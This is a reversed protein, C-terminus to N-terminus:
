NKTGCYYCRALRMLRWKTCGVCKVLSIDTIRETRDRKGPVRVLKDDFCRLVSSWPVPYVHAVADLKDRCLAQVHAVVADAVPLGDCPGQIMPLTTTFFEFLAPEGMGLLWSYDGDTITHSYITGDGIGLVWYCTLVCEFLRPDRFANYWVQNLLGLRPFMVTTVYQQYREAPSDKHSAHGLPYILSGRQLSELTLAAARLVSVLGANIGPSILPNTFGASNGIAFWGPGAVVPSVFALQKRGFYTTNPAYYNPLLKFRTTLLTDLIPYKKQVALFKAETSRGKVQALDSDDRLVWGISVIWEYSAGFEVCLENATPMDDALTGALALDVFHSLMDMLQLTPTQQWSMLRIFWGWGEPFCLHKTAIYDFHDLRKDLPADMNETFYAWYAETNWKNGDLSQKPAVKSTLRRAFGSADCVVDAHVKDGPAAAGDLRIADITASTVDFDVGTGHYVRVGLRQAWITLFLESVRRDLQFSLDVTGVDQATVGNGNPDIHLFDLGDKVGFIRLLYEVPMGHSTMFRTFIALTSEGIKHAPTMSKEFVAIDLTPDSKKLQIAYCLGLIGGGAVAVDAKPSWPAVNNANLLETDTWSPHQRKLESFYHRPGKKKFLNLFND